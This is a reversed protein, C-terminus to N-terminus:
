ESITIKGNEDFRVSGYASSYENMKQIIDAKQEGEAIIPQYNNYGSAGSVRAPIIGADFDAQLVGDIFTFTQQFVATNKEGPNRNAGFSFNGLSYCILKGNYYEIGQLVHPHNGIVLDAGADILRRGLSKQTDNAYYDGEIGWHPSVIILNAGEEKAKAIGDFLYKEAVEYADGKFLNVSVMAAKIGDESTYYSVIDNYAWLVGAKDLANQTDILSEEGYDLTHNNGLSCAEVSNSTLIGTYSEKGKINFQKDVRVDADTFVCELNILTLDDNEFVESFKDFFYSEGNEDYYQHFSAAWEHYQLAGLACDGTATVTFTTVVPEIITETESETETDIATDTIDENGGILSEQESLINEDNEGAQTDSQMGCGSMLLAYALVIATTRKTRM